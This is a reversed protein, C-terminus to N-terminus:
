ARPRGAARRALFTTTTRALVAVLAVGACFLGLFKAATAVGAVRAVVPFVHGDQYQGLLFLSLANEVYDFPLGCFPLLLTVRWPGEKIALYRLMAGILCSVLVAFFLPILFDLTYLLRVLGVIDPSYLDFIRYVEEASSVPALDLMVPFGDVIAEPRREAIAPVVYGAMVVNVAVIGGLALAATRWTARRELHDLLLTLTTGM